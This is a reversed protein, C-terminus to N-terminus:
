SKRLALPLAVLIAVAEGLKSLVGSLTVPEGAGVQIGPDGHTPFPLGHLVAFVYLAFFLACDAVIVAYLLRHGRVIVAAGLGLQSVAAALFGLGLVTSVELHEPAQQLHIAGTALLAAALLIRMWQARRLGRALSPVSLTSGLLLLGGVASVLPGPGMLPAGMAGALPDVTVIREIDFFTWYVVLFGAGAALARLPGPRGSLLYATWLAAAGIAATALYAGDGLVGNVLQQGHHLTVWPMAVGVLVLTVGAAVAASGIVVRSGPARPASGAAVGVTSMVATHTRAASGDATRRIQGSPVPDRAWPM